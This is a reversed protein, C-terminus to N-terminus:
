RYSWECWGGLCAMAVGIWGGLWVVARCGCQCAGALGAGGLLHCCAAACVVPAVQARRVFRRPLVLGRDGDSRRGM